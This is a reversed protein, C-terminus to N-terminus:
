LEVKCKLLTNNKFYCKMATGNDTTFFLKNITVDQVSDGDNQIQDAGGGSVHNQNHGDAVNESTKISINKCKNQIQSETITATIKMNSCKYTSKSLDITDYAFSYGIGTTILSVLLLKKM